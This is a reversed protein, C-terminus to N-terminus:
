YGDAAVFEVRGDTFRDRHSRTSGFETRVLDLLVFGDTQLNAATADVRPSGTFTLILHDLDLVLSRETADSRTLEFLNDYPRGFWGDPLILGASGVVEFFKRITILSETNTMMLGAM